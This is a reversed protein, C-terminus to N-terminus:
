PEGTVALVSNDRFDEGSTTGALIGSRTRRLYIRSRYLSTYRRQLVMVHTVM